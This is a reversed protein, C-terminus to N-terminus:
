VKRLLKEVRDWGPQTSARRGLREIDQLDTEACERMTPIYVGKRRFKEPIMAAGDQLAPLVNVGRVDFGRVAQFRSRSYYRVAGIGLRRVRLGWRSKRCFSVLLLYPELIYHVELIRTSMQSLLDRERLASRDLYACLNSLANVVLPAYELFQACLLREQEPPPSDADTCRAIWATLEVAREDLEGSFTPVEHLILMAESEISRWEAHMSALSEANRQRQIINLQSLGFLLAVAVVATQTASFVLGWTEHSIGAYQAALM